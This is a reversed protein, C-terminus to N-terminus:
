SSRELRCIAVMTPAGNRVGVLVVDPGHSAGEAIPRVDARADGEVVVTHPSVPNTTMVQNGDGIPIPLLPRWAALVVCPRPRM